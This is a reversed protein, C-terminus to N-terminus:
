DKSTAMHFFEELVQQLKASPINKIRSIETSINEVENPALKQFVISAVDVDLAIMLLAAKEVGSLKKAKTSLNNETEILNMTM